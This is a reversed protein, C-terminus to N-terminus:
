KPKPAASQLLHLPQNYRTASLDRIIKCKQKCPDIQRTTTVWLVSKGTPGLSERSQDSLISFFLHVLIIEPQNQMKILQLTKVSVGIVNLRSKLGGALSNYVELLLVYAYLGDVIMCTLDRM